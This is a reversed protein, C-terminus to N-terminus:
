APRRVAASARECMQSCRGCTRDLPSRVNQACSTPCRLAPTTHRQSSRSRNGLARTGRVLATKELRAAETREQRNVLWGGVWRSDPSPRKDNWRRALWSGRLGGLRGRVNRLTINLSRVALELVELLGDSARSAHSHASTTLRRSTGWMGVNVLDSSRTICADVVGLARARLEPSRTSVPTSSTSLRPGVTLLRQSGGRNQVAPAAQSDCGDRTTWTEEACRTIWQPTVM